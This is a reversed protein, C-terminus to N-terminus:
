KEPNSPYGYKKTTLIFQDKKRTLIYLNDYIAESLDGTILNEGSLRNVIDDVTNSHGVVLVNGKRISKLRDIFANISDKSPSYLQVQIKREESIPKATSITRHYNTSFISEINKSKLEDRLVFSRVQGPESLPPNAVTFGSSDKTVVAKEAHRVIYYRQSSCSVILVLFVLPILRM